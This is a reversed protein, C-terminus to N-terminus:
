RINIKIGYKDFEKILSDNDKYLITNINIGKAADINVEMDDIFISEEEKIKYEELLRKYIDVEPKVLNEKFSVIGGNFDDLFNYKEKIKEFSIRHFNSLFYINYGEHKLVKIVKITEKIPVLLDYWNDFAGRIYYEIDSNRNVIKNIAEEESIVGRDLMEWEKSEFIEKFVIQVLDSNIIKKSLYEKPNYELIVNGIDFIINKIM